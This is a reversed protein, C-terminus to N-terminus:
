YVKVPLSHALWDKLLPTQHKAASVGAEHLMNLKKPDKEARKVQEHGKPRIIFADGQEELAELQDLTQNYIEHRKLMAEVLQPYERYVLKSTLKARFPKKRYGKPRTLVVVHRKYGDKIAKQIPIPDAIGGDLLTYGALKVPIGVLPLSSSAQVATFVDAEQRNDFYRVDGTECDTTPIVFREKINHFTKFDFPVLENAIENFLFDMNFMGKGKFVNGINIYRSDNAFNVNIYRSRDPQRSLYSLANCAGASVGIVYPFYLDETMMYDLVGSSFVGRMGGGELVLSTQKM